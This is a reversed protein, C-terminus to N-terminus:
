HDMRCNGDSPVTKALETMLYDAKDRIPPPGAAKAMGTMGSLCEGFVTNSNQAWWGGLPQGPARLQAAARFGHLIDDNSVGFYFDRSKQYQDSWRSKGLHVGDYDFANVRNRSAIGAPTDATADGAVGALVSTAATAKLFDRRQM